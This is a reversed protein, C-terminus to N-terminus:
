RMGFMRAAFSKRKLQPGELFKGSIWFSGSLISGATLPEALLRTDTVVDIEGGLTNVLAWSFSFGTYENVIERTQLVQGTFFATAGPDDTEGFLGSPIFSEPALKIETEQSNMFQEEDRYVYLEHSFATLQVRLIQPLELIGYLARDPIDFVLPYIGSKGGPEPDAWGHFAGDLVADTKRVVEATIGLCRDSQGTYHPNMGIIEHKPNLQLWLEIGENAELHVYIGKGTLIRKGQKLAFEALKNWDSEQEVDFGISTM